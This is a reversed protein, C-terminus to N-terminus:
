TRGAPAPAWTRWLQAIVLGEALLIGVAPSFILFMWLAYLKSEFYYYERSDAALRRGAVEMGGVTGATGLTSLGWGAEWSVPGTWIRFLAKLWCYPFLANCMLHKSSHVLSRSLMRLMKVTTLSQLAMAAKTSCFAYFTYLSGSGPLQKKQRKWDAMMTLIIVCLAIM